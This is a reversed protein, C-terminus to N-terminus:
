VLGKALQAQRLGALDTDIPIILDTSTPIESQATLTIQSSNVDAILPWKDPQGYSQGAITELTDGQITTYQKGPTPKM